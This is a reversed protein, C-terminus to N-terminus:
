KAAKESEKVAKSVDKYLKEIAQKNTNYFKYAKGAASGFQKVRKMFKEKRTPKHTKSLNDYLVKQATVRKSVEQWQETTLKQRNRWIYEYDDSYMIRQQNQLVIKEIEEPSLEQKGSSRGSKTDKDDYRDKASDSTINLSREAPSRQKNSLPYPPGNRKGWKMGLIGSHSLRDAFEEASCEPAITSNYDM